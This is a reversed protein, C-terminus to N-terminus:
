RSVDWNQWEMERKEGGEQQQGVGGHTNAVWFFGCSSDSIQIKWNV